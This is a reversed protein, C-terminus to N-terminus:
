NLSVLLRYALVLPVHVSVQKSPFVGMPVRWDSNTLQLLALTENMPYRLPPESTLCLVHVAPRM